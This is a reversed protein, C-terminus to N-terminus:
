ADPTEKDRLKRIADRRRRQRQRALNRDREIEEATMQYDTWDHFYWGDSHRDEPLCECEADVSHWYGCATLTAALKSGGRWTRVYDSPIYGDLKYACSYAGALVWLGMAATDAMRSKPHGHLTDDVKFWPM